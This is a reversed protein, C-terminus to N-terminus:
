SLRALEGLAQAHACDALRPVELGHDDLQEVYM